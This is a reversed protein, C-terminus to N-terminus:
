DHDDYLDARSFDGPLPPLPPMGASLDRLWQNFEARTLDHPSRRGAGLTQESNDALVKLYRELPIGRAAAQQRLRELARAAQDELTVTTTM